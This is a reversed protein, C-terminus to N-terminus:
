RRRRVRMSAFPKKPLSEQRKRKENALRLETAWDATHVKGEYKPLLDVLYQSADLLHYRSAKVIKESSEDAFRCSTIEDILDTCWPAIFVRNGLSAQLNKILEKKRQSKNFPSIYSIGRASATQIYWTEHPDAIRRVINVNVTRKLVEDILKEPIMIDKLYDARIIYWWGTSPNEAAIVMGHASSLAPDSAEVHRWAPSYDPPTAVMTNPDFQYVMEDGLTWEGELVTRQYNESFSKISDMLKQRDEKTYVPNDLAKLRFEKGYPPELGEIFKRIEPAPAKPTFSLLVQGNKAQVRRTVEEILKVSGPLEDIWAMHASFSQIRERALNPNEHSFFLCTNGTEIHTVKSLTGAMKSVKFSGPTMLGEMKKWLSEEAQKLTRALILIQLPESKWREPKEWGPFTEELLWTIIRACTATKGSQNGGRVGILSLENNRVANIVQMQSSTPKSNPVAADFIDQKEMVQFKKLAAALVRQKTLDDRQM